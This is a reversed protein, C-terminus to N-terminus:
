DLVDKKLRVLTSRPIGTLKSLVSLGTGGRIINYALTRTEDSIPQRHMHEARWNAGLLGIDPLSEPNIKGAVGGFTRRGNASGLENALARTVYLPNKGIITAIQRANFFDGKVLVIADKRWDYDAISVNRNSYMRLALSIADDNNM